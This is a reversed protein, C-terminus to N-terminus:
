PKCEIKQPTGGACKLPEDCDLAGSITGGECIIGLWSQVESCFLGDKRGACSDVTKGSCTSADGIVYTKKLSLYKSYLDYSDGLGIVPIQMRTAFDLKLGFDQALSFKFQPGQTANVGACVNASLNVYPGVRGELGVADFALVRTVAQFSCEYLGTLQVEAGVFKLSSGSFDPKTSTNVLDDDKYEFGLEAHGKLEARGKVTGKGQVSIECTIQPSFGLTVPVSTTPLVIVVETGNWEEKLGAVPIGSKEGLLSSQGRIQIGAELDAAIVPDLTLKASAHKVGVPVYWKKRIKFSADFQPNLNWGANSMKFIPKVFVTKEANSEEKGEISGAQTESGSKKKGGLVSLHQPVVESGEFIPAGNISLDGEAIWEQMEAKETTFVTDAGEKTVATVKRLFGYPNPDVAGEPVAVYSRNGALVTGVVIRDIMAQLEPTNKIRMLKPEVRVADAFKQNTNVSNAQFTIAKPTNFDLPADDDSTACGTSLTVATVLSIWLSRVIMMVAYNSPSVVDLHIM